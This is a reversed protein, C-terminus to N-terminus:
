KELLKPLSAFSFVWIEQNGTDPQHDIVIEEGGMWHIVLTVGQEVAADIVWYPITCIGGADVTITDGPKASRIQRVVRNWFGDEVTDEPASATTPVAPPEMTGPKGNVSGTTYLGDADVEDDLKQGACDEPCGDGIDAANNQGTAMVVADNKLIISSGVGQAGGGIGAGHQGGTATVSGGSIIIDSGYSDFGGGIGAAFHGGFAEVEGGSITIDSGYSDNGGGIGAGQSGGAATVDGGSITIDTGSGGKGGGIGAGFYDSTATVTGGSIAIDSGAGGEGGGIGAGNSRSNATVDGGSITINSGSGGKGGGIGASYAGSNAEVKGGSIIIDTGSGGDGGGIGAGSAGGFAVVEGGSITINSASGGDGGGIGAGYEGGNATVEGGSITINSGYGSAPSNSGIGAGYKGGTASLAGEAGSEDQIVLSGSGSTQLGASYMGSTLANEGDLEVTVTTDEGRNVSMAAGGSTRTDINVDKLTVTADGGDTNVTITNSTQVGGSTIVPNPDEYNVRDPNNAQTVTQGNENATVTVSGVTLDYEEALATIPMGVVLLLAILASLIRSGMEM